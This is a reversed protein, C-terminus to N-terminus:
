CRGGRPVDPLCVSLCTSLYVALCSSLYVALRVCGRGVVLWGRVLRRSIYYWRLGRRPPPSVM